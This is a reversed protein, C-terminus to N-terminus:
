APDDAAPFITGSKDAAGSMYNEIYGFKQGTTALLGTTTDIQYVYNGAVIGSSTTSSGTILTGASQSSLANMTLRNNLIRAGGLVKSSFTCLHGADNTAAKDVINGSCQFRLLNGLVSVVAGDTAALGYVYNNLVALGDSENNTSGTTVICLFNLISSTDVFSAGEISFDKASTTFASAVDAFNAIFFGGKWSVNAASITITAAAAGYTFNAASKGNGLCIVSVGSKSINLSSATVTEAHGPLVVIVDGKAATALTVAKQVTALAREPKLGRNGDSGTGSHVFLYTGACPPLAGALFPAGFPVKSASM